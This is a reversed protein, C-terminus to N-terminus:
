YEVILIVACTVAWGAVALLIPVDTVLVHDPEEGGEGRHLILLYRFVAYLVYPITIMLARSEGATFTYLAYAVIAAAAVITVFQDIVALSYGDLVRRGPTERLEVLLLEARRKGLALFLALLGTCLLLWPSIPVDVAVAGAAARAVFLGAIAFVDILVIHKLSATYALQLAVFAALLGVSEPGLPAAVVFAVVFLAVALWAAVRVSLRGSAIPRHRKVPHARDAERDRLDNFLYGASSAACYAVFCAVAEIWRVPDGLRAAFLIGAFVLLNKTWQHPRLAAFAAALTRRRVPVDVL